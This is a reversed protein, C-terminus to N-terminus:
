AFRWYIPELDAAETFPRRPRLPNWKETFEIGRVLVDSQDFFFKREKVFL